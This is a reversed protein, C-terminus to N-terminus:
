GYGSYILEVICGHMAFYLRMCCTTHGGRVLQELSDVASNGQVGIHREGLSRDPKTTTCQTSRTAPSNLGETKAGVDSFGGKVSQSLVPLREM